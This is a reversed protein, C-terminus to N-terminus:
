RECIAFWTYVKTDHNYKEATGTVRLVTDDSQLSIDSADFLNGTYTDWATLGNTDDNIMEIALYVNTIRKIVIRRVKAGITIDQTTGNGTYTGTRVFAEATGTPPLVVPLRVLDDNSTLQIESGENGKFYLETKSDATKTYLVAEGVAPEPTATKVDPFTVQKHKGTDLGDITNTAITFVHDVDLREVLPTKFDALIMDDLDRPSDSGIPRNTVFSTFPM